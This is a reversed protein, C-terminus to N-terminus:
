VKDNKLEKIFNSIKEACGECVEQYQHEHETKYGQRNFVLKLYYLDGKEEGCVDCYVKTVKM